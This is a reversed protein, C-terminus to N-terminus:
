TLGLHERIRALEGDSAFRAAFAAVESPNGSAFRRDRTGAEITMRRLQLGMSGGEDYCIASCELLPNDAKMMALFIDVVEGPWAATSRVTTCVVTYTPAFQVFGDRIQTVAQRAEAIDIPPELGVLM